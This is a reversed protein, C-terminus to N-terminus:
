RRGRAHAFVVLAVGALIVVMAAILPWTVHEDAFLAGLGV